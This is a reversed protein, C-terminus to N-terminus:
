FNRKPNPKQLKEWRLNVRTQIGSIKDLDGMILIGRRAVIRHEFKEIRKTETLVFNRHKSPLVKLMIRTDVIWGIALRLRLVSDEQLQAVGYKKGRLTREKKLIKM